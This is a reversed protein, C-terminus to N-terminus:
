CLRVALFAQRRTNPSLRKKNRSDNPGPSRRAAAYDIKRGIGSYSKYSDCDPWLKPAAVSQAEAPLPTQLYQECTVAVKADNQQASLLLACMPAILAALWRKRMSFLM